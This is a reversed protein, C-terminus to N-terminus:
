LQTTMVQLCLSPKSYVPRYVAIPNQSIAPSWITKQIRLKSIRSPTSDREGAPIARWNDPVQTKAGTQVSLNVALNGFGMSKGILTARKPRLHTARPARPKAAALLRCKIAPRLRAHRNMSRKIADIDSEVAREAWAAYVRLMTSIRHGHRKAVWLPNKGGMLSWSVSSHRATYPRRYRLKVSNLTARSRKGPIQLNWLRDAHTQKVALDM